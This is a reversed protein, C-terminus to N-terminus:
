ARERSPSVALVRHGVSREAGRRAAPVRPRRQAPARAPAQRRRVDIRAMAVSKSKFGEITANVFVDEGPLTLVTSGDGGADDAAQRIYSAREKAYEEESVIAKRRELFRGLTVGDDVAFISASAGRHTRPDPALDPRLQFFLALGGSILAVVATLMAGSMTFAQRLHSFRSPRPAPAAAPEPAQAQAM